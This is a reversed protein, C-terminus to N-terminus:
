IMLFFSINIFLRRALYTAKEEIKKKELDSCATYLGTKTNENNSYAGAVWKTKNKERIKQGPMRHKNTASNSNEMLHKESEKFL